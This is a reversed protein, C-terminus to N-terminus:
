ILRRVCRMDFADNSKEWCHPGNSENITFTPVPMVWCKKQEDWEMFDQYFLVAEKIFPYIEKRLLEKDLSYLYRWYQMTGEWATHYFQYRWYLFSVEYGDHGWNHPLYIGRADFLKKANARFGPLADKILRWYPGALEPHNTSEVAQYLAAHPFDYYCGTLPWEPQSSWLMCLPPAYEARSSSALLYQQFYWLQEIDKDPVEIFSKTWFSHWWGVHEEELRNYGEKEAERLIDLALSTPNDSEKSTALSVLVIIDLEPAPGM